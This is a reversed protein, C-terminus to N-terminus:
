SFTLNIQFPNQKLQCWSLSWVKPLHRQVHVIDSQTFERLSGGAFLSIIAELRATTFRQLDM